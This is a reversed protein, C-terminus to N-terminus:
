IRLWIFVGDTKILSKVAITAVYKSILVVIASLSASTAVEEMRINKQTSLIAWIPKKLELSLDTVLIKGKWDDM